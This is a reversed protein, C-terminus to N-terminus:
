PMDNWVSKINVFERIGETSLERGFGSKKIGGFPLRPDSKVFGNIFVSGSEIEAAFIDARKPDSTWVSAGLGFATQNALTLAAEMNRVRLVVAVPGFTEERAATMVPLVHDILTVPYFFGAGKPLEGGLILKGGAKLTECVQRHLDVRLDNRALPGVDTERNMPDGMRLRSLKEELLAVFDDAVKNEVIFRKAAICSQGSNLTRSVVGATSAADLDADGLVVFPDSGGLEMVSPKLSRGAAAAVRRGASESGTLSVAAVAPDSILAEARDADILLSQFVGESMGAMRFAEAITLACQPVNSAHKLLITNGAMLTPAAFRFVQWFPFNWPMIGLVVGLPDYRVDSNKADSEVPRPALMKEGNEAYYDCVWACKLIEAESQALPKGMELSMLEAWAVSNDRLRTAVVKLLASRQALPSKRWSRFGEQALALSRSIEGESFPQFRKILQGTFPNVTEIAM